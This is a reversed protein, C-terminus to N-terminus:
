RTVRYSASPEAAESLAQGVRIAVVVFRGKGGWPLVDYAEALM